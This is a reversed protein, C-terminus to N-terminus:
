IEENYRRYNRVAETADHVLSKLHKINNINYVGIIGHKSCPECCRAQGIRYSRERYSWTKEKKDVTVGIPAVGVVSVYCNNTAYVLYILKTKKTKPNM